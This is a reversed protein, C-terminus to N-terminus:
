ATGLPLYLRITTGQGPKSELAIRGHHKKVIVSQVIALGQGTGKGVPKTTFFPEFIRDRIAEPIGAGTDTVRSRWMGTGGAPPWGSRAGPGRGTRPAREEIAHAANVILNLIAQNVEDLHCPVAPLGPDLDLTWTPSTSGSTGPSTVTSEIARNLNAATMGTEGPHAYDKMSGVIKM